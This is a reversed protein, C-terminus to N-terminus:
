EIIREIIQTLLKEHKLLSELLKFQTRCRTLNQKPSTAKYYLDGALYDTLFRLGQEYVIVKGASMLNKKEASTLFSSAVGLYGRVLAEFLPIEICVKSLDDEDEHARTTCTRVLDGFDFLSFGPMVTDLDIVCLAQDTQCDLLINGIKADNHTIREPITKNRKFEEFNATIGQHDFGFRIETAAGAARNCPDTELIREFAAFRKSLSHFGPITEALRPGPLDLLDLQFQAFMKAAQFVQSENEVRNLSSAREILVFTRWYNGQDDLFFSRGDRAPILTLCKRSIENENRQLLKQRVNALVRELNNMLAIPDQFVSRNIRQHLFRVLNGGHDYVGLYSDNIHGQGYPTCSILEGYIHFNQAIKRCTHRDM